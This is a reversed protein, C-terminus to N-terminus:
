LDDQQYITYGLFAKTMNPSNHEYNGSAYRLSLFSFYIMLFLPVMEVTPYVKRPYEQM